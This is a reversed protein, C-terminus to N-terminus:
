TMFFICLTICVAAKSYFRISTPRWASRPGAGNHTLKVRSPVTVSGFHIGYVTAVDGRSFPLPDADVGFSTEEGSIGYVTVTIYAGTGAWNKSSTTFTIDWLNDSIM